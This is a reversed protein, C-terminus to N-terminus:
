ISPHFKRNVILQFNRLTALPGYSTPFRKTIRLGYCHYRGGNEFDKNSIETQTGNILVTGDEACKGGSSAFFEFVAGPYKEEFAISVVEIPKAEFSIWWYPALDTKKSCWYSRGGKVAKSSNYSNRSSPWSSSAKFKITLGEEDSLQTSSM